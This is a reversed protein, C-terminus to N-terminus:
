TQVTPSNSANHRCGNQFTYHFMLGIKKFLNIKDTAGRRTSKQGQHQSRPMAWSLTFVQIVKTNRMYEGVLGPSDDTGEVRLIRIFRFFLKHLVVKALASHHIEIHGGSHHGKPQITTSGARVTEKVSISPPWRQKRIHWLVQSSHSRIIVELHFDKQVFHYIM